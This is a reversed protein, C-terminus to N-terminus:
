PLEVSDQLTQLALGALVALDPRGEAGWFWIYVDLEEQAEPIQSLLEAAGATDGLWARCYGLTKVVGRHGPSIRYATSLYGEAAKFDRRLMSILGLRQNATRNEPNLQLSARLASEADALQAAMEPGPWGGHPFDRLEMQAMRVSGLDAYWASLLKGPMFIMMLAAGLLALGAATRLAAGERAGEAERTPGVMMAVGALAFLLLAGNGNYLYDDVLGHVLAATLAFLAIWAMPEGRGHEQTLSLALKFIAFLYILLLAFGGFVGQEIAADLFLNHSNPVNFHPISLIYGSYLGPFSGLGGGTIPHDEVLYLSRAFLEARSGDGFRHQEWVSGRSAPGLYLFFIMGALYVLLLIPFLCRIRIRSQIRTIRWLPWVGLGGLIALLAGRSTAMFLALLILAMGAWALDRFLHESVGPRRRREWLPLIIFPASIAALGATYNPHIPKWGTEPRVEMLWRGIRNALELKRPAASFDYTLFFHVSIGVGLCFFLVAIWIFNERPQAALAYYLLVAGVILWMKNWATPRDYAAWFGVCATILFLAILWDLSSRRFPFVGAALRAAWPLLAALMILRSVEPRLMCVVACGLVLLLDALAFERSETIRRLTGVRGRGDTRGFRLQGLLLAAM